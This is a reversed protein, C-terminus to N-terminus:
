AGMFRRGADCFRLFDCSGCWPGPTEGFAESEIGGVLREMTSGAEELWAEDAVHSEEAGGGGLYAFTVVLSEPKPRGLEYSGAAVAYAQLQVVRSPDDSPRGSKFDVIEWKGNDIYIADIRGRVVTSRITLNFPQEVLDAPRRAFRSGLFTEFAGPAAPEETVLDYSPTEDGIPLPVIGRHHLEIRRHIETGRVAAPNARRPLPDVESWYFRKPCQAYTVLGTVSVPKPGSAPHAPAQEAMSFLRQEVETVVREHEQRLSLEESLREPWSPDALTARIAGDWGEPFHPDPDFTTEFRLLEPADIPPPLESVDGSVENVVEWLQSPKTPKSRPMPYGYWYAGTVFLHRRARTVAVYATRWEQQFHADRLFDQIVEYDEPLHAMVTDRRLEIPIAHATSMPNGFGQSGSPFNQDYVAPIAVVDWELGKARHVTLLTVADEGSVRAQDLEDVQEEETASLYDLFAPLSPRGHLPSWDQALDLLRYLNLRATLRASGPLAEVDRWAGTVDLVLRCTEVLSLGQSEILLRRYMRRFDALSSMAEARLGSIEDQEVAELLTVPMPNGEADEEDGHKAREALRALDAIGWRFRSGMLITALSVSDDPHELIRLWAILDAVEPVSLLGGVNAVEVPIDHRAFADVIVTFDKNKRLLIAMDRWAVGADHLEEFRSAIWDAEAISTQAWHTRIMSGPDDPLASVLSESEPNALRRVRNAVELITSTSRRNRTLSRLHARDGEPTPFHEDFRAFNEISAGRWEYITQDEDGVAIVPFGRGFVTQLLVRQAPNTDQYEDLVAVRYRSRILNALDEHESMLGAALRVLDSFDVVGLARKEKEYRELLLTMERREDAKPSDDPYDLLLEPTLLHDGLRDGLTRVLDLRKGWTVDLHQLPPGSDVVEKLIQRAFTPTIVQYRSDLGALAGFESLLQAAFGHYTHIEAQRAPDDTGLFVRVRDALEAAAKNTFTLGVVQEPAVGHNAVLNAIVLAVTTTKGTGAGARVKISTLGLDLIAQQEPSPTVLSM